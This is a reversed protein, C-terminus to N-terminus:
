RAPTGQPGMPLPNYIFGAVAKDIVTSLQDSQAQTIVGETVDQALADQYAKTLADKVTQPDVKQTAAVDVVSKGPPTIMTKVLDPCKLSLAQAVVGYQKVLNFMGLGFGGRQGFGPAPPTGGNLQLLLINITSIDPFPVNQPTQPRAPRTGSPAPATGPASPPATLANAEDQTMVSDKVAQDIDAKRAAQLADTVSKQDVNKSTALDQLTQGGVLAKRLEAPSIGLTKAAIDAYNTTTCANFAQADISPRGPFQGQAMTPLDGGISIMALAALTAALLLFKFYRTM